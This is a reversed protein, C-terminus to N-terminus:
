VAPATREIIEREWRWVPGDEPDIVAGVHQFELKELIRCSANHEPLTHARVLAVEDEAARAIEVLAAALASAVGRGEDGPFTFYAIEVARQGDPEGKFGGAGVVRRASGERAFYGDWPARAGGAALIGATETAIAVAIPEHPALAMEYREAFASPDSALLTAAAKDLSFLTIDRMATLM